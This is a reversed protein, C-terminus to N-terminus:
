IILSSNMHQYLYVCGRCINRVMSAHLILLENVQCYTHICIFNYACICVKILDWVHQFNDIVKKKVSRHNFFEKMHYLTGAIGISTETFFENMTDQLSM